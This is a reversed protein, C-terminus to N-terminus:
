PLVSCRSQWPCMNGTSTNHQSGIWLCGCCGRCAFLLLLLPGFSFTNGREKRKVGRNRERELGIGGRGEEGEAERERGGGEGFGTWLESIASVMCDLVFGVVGHDEVFRGRVFQVFVYLGVPQDGDRCQHIPQLDIPTQRPLRQIIQLLLPLNLLHHPMTFQTNVTLTKQNKSPQPFPSSLFPSTSYVLSVQITSYRSRHRSRLLIPPLMSYSQPSAPIPYLAGQHSKTRQLSM